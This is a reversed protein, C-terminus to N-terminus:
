AYLIGDLAKCYVDKAKLTLRHYTAEDYQQRRRQLQEMEIRYETYAEKRLWEKDTFETPQVVVVLDTNRCTYFLVWDNHRYAHEKVLDNGGAFLELTMTCLFWYKGNHLVVKGHREKLYKMEQKM